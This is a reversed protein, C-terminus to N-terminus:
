DEQVSSQNKLGKELIFATLRYWSILWGFVLILGVLLTVGNRILSDNFNKTLYNFLISIVFNIIMLTFWVYIMLSIILGVMYDFLPQKSTEHEYMILWEKVNM